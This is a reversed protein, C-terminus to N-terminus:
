SLKGSSIEIKDAAEDGLKERIKEKILKLREHKLEQKKCACEKVASELDKLITKNIVQDDM